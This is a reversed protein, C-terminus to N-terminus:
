IITAEGILITPRLMQHSSVKPKNMSKRKSIAIREFFYIFFYVFECTLTLNSLNVNSFCFTSVLIEFGVKYDNIIGTLEATKHAAVLITLNQNLERAHGIFIYSDSRAEIKQFAKVQDDTKLQVRYLRYHDYRAKDEQGYAYCIFAIAFIAANAWM